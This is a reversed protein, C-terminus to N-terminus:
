LTLAFGANMNDDGSQSQSRLDLRGSVVKRRRRRRQQVENRRTKRTKKMEDGKKIVEVEEESVCEFGHQTSRFASRKVAASVKIPQIYPGM